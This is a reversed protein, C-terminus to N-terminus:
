SRCDFQDYLGPLLFLPSPPSSPIPPNSVCVCANMICWSSEGTVYDAAETPVQESNRPVRVSLQVMIEDSRAGPRWGTWLRFHAQSTEFKFSGTLAPVNKADYSADRESSCRSTWTHTCAPGGLVAMDRMITKKIAFM